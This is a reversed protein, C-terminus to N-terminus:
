LINWTDCCSVIFVASIHLLKKVTGFSTRTTIQHPPPCDNIKWNTHQQLVAPLLPM